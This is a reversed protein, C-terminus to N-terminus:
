FFLVNIISMHSQKNHTSIASVFAPLFIHQYLCFIVRMKKGRKDMDVIKM